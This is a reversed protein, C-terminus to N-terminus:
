KVCNKKDFKANAQQKRHIYLRKVQTAFFTNEGDGAFGSIQENEETFYKEKDYSIL